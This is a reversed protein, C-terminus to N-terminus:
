DPRWEGQLSFAAWYFPHNWKPQRMIYLQARRLADAPALGNTLMEIYFQNMLKSTAADAVQWFSAVVRKSGAYM